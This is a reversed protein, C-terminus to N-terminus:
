KPNKRAELEFLAHEPHARMMSGIYYSMRTGLDEINGADLMRLEIEFGQGAGILNMNGEPGHLTLKLGGIEINRTGEPYVDFIVRVRGDASLIRSFEQWLDRTQSLAFLLENHPFLIQITNFSSDAFPLHRERGVLADAGLLSFRSSQWRSGAKGLFAYNKDMGVVLEADIGNLYAGGSGVGVELHRRIETEHM